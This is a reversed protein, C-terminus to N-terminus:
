LRQPPQRIGADRNKLFEEYKAELMEAKKTKSSELRPREVDHNGGGGGGRGGQSMGSSHGDLYTYNMSNLTADGNGIFSFSSSYGQTEYASELSNGSNTANPQVGQQSVRSPNQTATQGEGQSNLINIFKMINTAGSITQNQNGNTLVCPIKKVSKPILQPNIKEIEVKVFVENLDRNNAILRMIEECHACRRSFFLIHRTM